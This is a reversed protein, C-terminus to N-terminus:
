LSKIGCQNSPLTETNHIHSSTLCVDASMKVMKVTSPSVGGGGNMMSPQWGSCGGRRAACGIEDASEPSCETAVRHNHATSPSLLPRKTTATADIYV